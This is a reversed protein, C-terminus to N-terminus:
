SSVTTVHDLTVDFSVSGNCGGLPVTAVLGKNKGMQPELAARRVLTASSNDRCPPFTRATNRLLSM